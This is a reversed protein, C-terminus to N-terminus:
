AKVIAQRLLLLNLDNTGAFCASVDPAGIATDPLKNAKKTDAKEASKVPLRNSKGAAPTQANAISLAMITLALTFFFKM